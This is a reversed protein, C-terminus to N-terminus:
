NARGIKRLLEQFRPDSHLPNLRPDIKLNALWPDDQAYARSLWQLADENRGLGTYIVAIGFPSVSHGPSPKQLEALIELAKRQNLSVAYVHGLMAMVVPSPAAKQLEAIAGPYNGHREEILGLAWHAPPFDPDMAMARAVEIKAKEYDDSYFGLMWALSAPAGPWLPDVEQVIHNQAIAEDMRGLSMLLQSYGHHASSSNVNLEIAKKFEREGGTTDWLTNSLFYGAGMHAEALSPDIELAKNGAAAQKTRVDAPVMGGYFRLLGYSSSLGVYAPAYDPDKLIAEQFLESGRQLSEMSRKNLEYQGKLYLQYADKNETSRAPSQGERRSDIKAAVQRSIEQEITLADSLKRTFRQGWLHRNDRADLLEVSFILDDDHRNMSGTLLTRVGLEKAIKESEMDKGKYHFVSNRAIVKLNPLKALDNMLGESLGDSLYDLAPDGTTNAFPLVALSDIAPAPWFYWAAAALLVLGALVLAITRFRARDRPLAIAPVGPAASDPLVSSPIASLGADAILSSNPPHLNEIPAVFRYGRRPVTEIFRSNDAADGLVERLRNIATNLSHDFDVFTDAPWLQQRIQDRTVIQGANELLLALIAFPQDQLKIRVGSKRLERNHLDAEFVGFRTGRPSTSPLDM